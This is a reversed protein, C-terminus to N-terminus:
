IDCKFPKEGTHMRAHDLFNWAKIFEKTCGPYRCHIVRKRKRPGKSPLYVAEYKYGKLVLLGDDAPASSSNQATNEYADVSSAHNHNEIKSLDGSSHFNEFGPQSQYVAFNMQNM